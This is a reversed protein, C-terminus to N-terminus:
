NHDTAQENCPNPGRAEVYTFNVESVIFGQTPSRDIKLGTGVCPYLIASICGHSTLFASGCETKLHDSFVCWLGYLVCVV